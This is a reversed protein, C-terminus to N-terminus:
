ADGSMTGSAAPLSALAATFAHDHTLFELEEGILTEFPPVHLAVRRDGRAPAHVVAVGESPRDILFREGGCGIDVTVLSGARMDPRDVPDLRVRPQSGTQSALWGTLLRAQADSGAVYRVTVEDLAALDQAFTADDFISAVVERWGTIKTWALDTIVQEDARVLPALTDLTAPFRTSDTVLRTALRRLGLFVDRGFAPEALWLLFVPLDPLLLSATMHALADSTAPGDLRVLECCVITAGEGISRCFVSADAHVRDAGVRGSAIVVRSPRNHELRAVAAAVDDAISAHDAYVILDVIHTRGVANDAAAGRLTALEREIQDSSLVSTM